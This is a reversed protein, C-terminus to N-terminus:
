LNVFSRSKTENAGSRFCLQYKPGPFLDKSTVAMIVLGDKPINNQLYNLISTTLLQEGKTGHYRRASDSVITDKLRPLISVDLDFFVKLYDATFQIVDSQEKSFTGIPQLYIKNRIESPRVPNSKLYLEFPQGKEPHVYLWEGPKPEALKIDLAKLKDIRPDPNQIAGALCFCLAITSFLLLSSKM